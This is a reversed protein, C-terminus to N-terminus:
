RGQEKEELAAQITGWGRHQLFISEEATFGNLRLFKYKERLKRNRREKAENVCTQVRELISTM